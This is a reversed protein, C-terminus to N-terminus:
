ERVHLTKQIERLSQDSVAGLGEKSDILDVILRWLPPTLLGLVVGSILPWIM